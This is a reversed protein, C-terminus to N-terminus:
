RRREWWLPDGREYSRGAAFGRWWPPSERRLFWLGTVASGMLMGSLVLVVPAVVLYVM